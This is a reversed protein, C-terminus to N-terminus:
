WPNEHNFATIVHYSHKKKNKNEQPKEYFTQLDGHIIMHNEMHNDPNDHSKGHTEDMNKTTKEHITMIEHFSEM